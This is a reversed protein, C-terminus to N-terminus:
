LKSNSKKTRYECVGGVEEKCCNLIDVLCKLEVSADHEEWKGNREVSYKYNLIHDNGVVVLCKKARSLAVCM